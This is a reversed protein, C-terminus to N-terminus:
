KRTMIDRAVKQALNKAPRGPNSCAFILSYYPQGSRGLPLWRKAVGGGFITEMCEIMFRTIGDPSAVKKPEVSDAQFFDGQSSPAQEIAHKRWDFPGFMSDISKEADKLVQGSNKVQRAVGLWAPFLYWLDVKETRALLELTEWRVQNGFPDLFVLARDYQGLSSCFDKVVNNADGGSIQIRDQLHPYEAALSNLEVTNKRRLDSFVYRSFPVEVNLARRVSGVIVAEADTIGPLTPMTVGTPIEGTGAFADLYHLRFPKEPRPKNRLVKTYFNAYDFVTDLKTQTHAGGFSKQVM